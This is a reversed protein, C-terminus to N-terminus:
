SSQVVVSSTNTGSLPNTVATAACPLGLSGHFVHHERSSGALGHARSFTTTRNEPALPRQALLNEADIAFWAGTSLFVSASRLILSLTDPVSVSYVYPICKAM